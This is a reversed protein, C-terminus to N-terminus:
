FRRRRRIRFALLLGFALGVERGSACGGNSGAACGTATESDLSLTRAVSSLVM